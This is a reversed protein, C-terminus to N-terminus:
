KLRSEYLDLADQPNMGGLIVDEVMAGVENRVMNSSYTDTNFVNEVFGNEVSKTASEKTKSGSEEIYAKFEDSNAVSKRLPLYGTNTSWKLTVEESCLYKVFEYAGFVEEATKGQNLVAVNSGQQIYKPNEHDVQPITTTAWDFTAGALFGEGASSGIYMHVNEALFPASSYKDEGAIRWIGADFNKKLTNLAELSTENNFLIEGNKGTYEADNQFLYTVLYNPLNDISFGAKGTIDTIQKAVTEVEEWTTPPTLGHENFFSENYYLLDTSKAFPLSYFQGSEDYSSNEVRYVDYIDEFNEIGIEEDFIYADLPQVYGSQIYEMINNVTGQVIEPSNGAKISAVTKAKVDDYGGQYVANVEIGKEAGVTSNFDAVIEAITDTFAGSMSHWFEISVPETIDKVIEVENGDATNTGGCGVLSLASVLATAGFVMKKKM